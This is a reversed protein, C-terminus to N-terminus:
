NAETVTTAAAEAAMADNFLQEYYSLMYQIYDYCIQFAPTKGHRAAYVALHLACRRFTNYADTRGIGRPFIDALAPIDEDFLADLAYSGNPDNTDTISEGIAEYYAEYDCLIWFKVYGAYEPELFSQYVVYIDDIEEDTYNAAELFFEKPNDPNLYAQLFQLVDLSYTTPRIWLAEDLTYGEKIEFPIYASRDTTDFAFASQVVVICLVAAILMVVSKKM